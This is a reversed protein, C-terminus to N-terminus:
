DRPEAHFVKASNGNALVVLKFPSYDPARPDTQVNAPSVGPPPGAAFRPPTGRPAPRDPAGAVGPRPGGGHSMPLEGGARARADDEAQASTSSGARRLLAAGVGVLVALLGLLVLYRPKKM